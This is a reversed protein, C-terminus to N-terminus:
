SQERVSAQGDEPISTLNSLRRWGVPLAVTAPASRFMPAIQLEHYGALGCGIKTVIFRWTDHVQTFQLFEDVFEQIVPLTLVELEWGKTPIAYSRGRFGSGVGYVAGYRKRAVAASGRGHRGALNSGFVFIPAQSSLM